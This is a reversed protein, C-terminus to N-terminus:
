INGLWAIFGEVLGEVHGFIPVQKGRERAFTSIHQWFSSEREKLQRKLIRYLSLPRNHLGPRPTEKQPSQAQTDAPSTQEPSANIRTAGRHEASQTIEDCVRIGVCEPALDDEEGALVDPNISDDDVNPGELGMHPEGVEEPVYVEPLPRMHTESPQTSNVDEQMGTLRHRNLQLLTPLATQRIRLTCQMWFELFWDERDPLNWSKADSKHPDGVPVVCIQEIYEDSLEAHKKLTDRVKEEFEWVKETFYQEPDRGSPCLSPVQNAFTLVFQCYQWIRKGFVRTMKRITAIDSKKPWRMQDMRVCYLMLDVPDCQNLMAQLTIEEKEDSEVGFGPTDWLSVTIGNEEYCYNAVEETEPNLSCGEKAVEKGLLGNILSSKGQGAEGVVVLGLRSRGEDLWSRLLSTYVEEHIEGLKIAAM